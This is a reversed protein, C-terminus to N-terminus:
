NTLKLDNKLQKVLVQNAYPTPHEDFPIAFTADKPNFLKTYDLVKVGKQELLRKMEGNELTTPYLIVYFTSQDFQQEFTQATKALVEATLEVHAANLQFPLGIQFYAFINSQLLIDYVLNTWRRNEKILGQAQLKGQEIVYYPANGKNYAYHSMTSVVRNIHDPIYIYFGLGKKEQVIPHVQKSELRALAQAPGYGSYAFNYPRYTPFAQGFFYPITEQDQVGEGFTMSCGFFQAFYPRDGAVPALPTQRLSFADSQYQIAYVTDKGHTKVGQHIELPAPKYGLVSDMVMSHTPGQLPEAVQAVKQQLLVGFIAEVLWLAIGSFLLFVLTNQLWTIRSAFGQYLCYGFVLWRSWVWGSKQLALGGVIGNADGAIYDYLIGSWSGLLYLISLTVLTKKLLPNNKVFDILGLYVRREM